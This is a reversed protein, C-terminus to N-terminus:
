GGWKRAGAARWMGGADCPEDVPAVQAARLLPRLRRRHSYTELRGGRTLGPRDRQVLRTQECIESAQEVDRQTQEVRADVSPLARVGPGGPPTGACAPKPTDARHDPASASARRPHDRCRPKPGSPAPVVTAAQKSTIPGGRALNLSRKRDRRRVLSSSATATPTRWSCPASAGHGTPRPPSGTYARADYASTSPTRTTSSSPSRERLGPCRM